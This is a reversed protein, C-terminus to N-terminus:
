HKSLKKVLWVGVFIICMAVFERTGFPERYVLWGLTVAVVPNVYNYISVIAVPLKEMAYIFSSYGVISGFIVLYLLAGTSRTNWHIPGAYLLAFPLSVLGATLQQVAGSVVPHATTALRRQRLSGWNWGLNGLLLVVLGKMMSGQWGGAMADPGVLLVAGGLCVVIGIWTAPRVHERPPILANMWLLFVPSVTIILAALGSALWNEAVILAGTGIGHVLLGNMATQRLEVGRPIPARLLKAGVLMLTGSLLFRAAIIYLAPFGELAIRIGLYTTGWFFCVSILAAYAWFDTHRKM